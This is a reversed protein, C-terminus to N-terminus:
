VSQSRQGDLSGRDCEEEGRIQFVTEREESVAEYEYRCVAKNREKSQLLFRETWDPVPEDRMMVRKGTANRITQGGPEGATFNGYEGNWLDVAIGEKEGPFCVQMDTVVTRRMRNEEGHCLALVEEATHAARVGSLYNQYEGEMGLVDLVM